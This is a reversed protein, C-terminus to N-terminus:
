LEVVRPRFGHGLVKKLKQALHKADQKQAFIGARIPYLIETGVHIPTFFLRIDQSSNQRVIREAHEKTQVRGVEVSYQRGALAELNEEKENGITRYFIKPYNAGEYSNLPM